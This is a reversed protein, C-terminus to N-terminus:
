LETRPRKTRPAHCFLATIKEPNTIATGVVVAHAGYQLAKAAKEPTNYRGEAIVPISLAASLRKVLEYDPEAPPVDGLRGFSPSYPTYGSLTTFVADIGYQAANIAEEYVSVDGFVPVEFRHKIEYIFKELSLDDFRKRKTADIVIADAGSKVLAEAEWLTPTIRMEGHKYVKEIGIVPIQVVSKLLAVYKLNVRIAAAGGQAVSKALATMTCESDFFANYDPGAYCSVILGGRIRALLDKAKMM